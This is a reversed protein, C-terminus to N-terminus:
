TQLLPFIHNLRFMTKTLVHLTRGWVTHSKSSVAVYILIQIVCTPDSRCGTKELRRDPGILYLVDVLTKRVGQVLKAHNIKVLNILSVDQGM